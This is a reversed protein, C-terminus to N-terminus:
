AAVKRVLLEEYHHLEGAVNRVRCFVGGAPWKNACHTHDGVCHQEKSIKVACQNQTGINSSTYERDDISRKRRSYPGVIWCQMVYGLYPKLEEPM